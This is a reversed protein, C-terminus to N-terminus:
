GLSFFGGASRRMSAHQKFASDNLGFRSRPACGLRRFVMVKSRPVRSPGECLSARGAGINPFALIALVPIHRNAVVLEFLIVWVLGRFAGLNDDAVAIRVREPDSDGSTRVVKWSSCRHQASDGQSTLDYVVPRSNLLDL